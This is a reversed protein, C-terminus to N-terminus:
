PCARVAPLATCWGISLLKESCTKFLFAVLGFRLVEAIIFLALGSLFQGRALLWVSLLKFPEIVVIPILFVLLTPYPPLREMFRIVWAKVDELPIRDVIWQILPALTDWLWSVALFLLAVATWIIRKLGRM